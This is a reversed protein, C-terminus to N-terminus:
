ERGTVVSGRDVTGAIPREDLLESVIHASMRPNEWHPAHGCDPIVRHRADPIKQRMASGIACFKSDLAGNLILTPCRLSELREHLPEQSGTGMGRLSLALGRASNGLRIARARERRKPEMRDQSEFLPQATWEAVFREMGDREIRDALAADAAVRTERDERDSLGPSASELILNRVLGPNGMAVYLALRGGMSYGWLDICTHGLSNVFDVFAESVSQMRFAVVDDPARTGGHGPLDVAITHKAHSLVAAVDDWIRLSGTFGHLLILPCESANGGNAYHWDYDGVCM